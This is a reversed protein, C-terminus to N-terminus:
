EKFYDELEPFRNQLEILASKYARSGETEVARREIYLERERPDTPLNMQSGDVTKRADRSAQYLFSAYGRLQGILEKQGTM